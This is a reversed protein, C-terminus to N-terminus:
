VLRRAPLSQEFEGRGSPHRRQMVAVRDYPVAQRDAFVEGLREGVTPQPWGIVRRPRQCARNASLHMGPEPRQARLVRHIHSRAKGAALDSGLRLRIDVSDHRDPAVATRMMAFALTIEQEARERDSVRHIRRHDAAEAGVAEIEFALGVLIAFRDSGQRRHLFPYGCRLVLRHDDVGELELSESSWSMWYRRWGRSIEIGRCATSAM